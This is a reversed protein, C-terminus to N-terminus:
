CLEQHQLKPNAQSHSGNVGEQIWMREVVSLNWFWVWIYYHTIAFSSPWSWNQCINACGPTKFLCFSHENSIWTKSKTRLDKEAATVHCAGHHSEDYLSNKTRRFGLASSLFLVMPRMKRIFLALCLSTKCLSVVFLPPFLIWSRKKKKKWKGNFSVRKHKRNDFAREVNQITLDDDGITQM